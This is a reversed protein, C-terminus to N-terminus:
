QQLSPTSHKFSHTTCEGTHVTLRPTGKMPTTLQQSNAVLQWTVPVCCGPLCMLLFAPHGRCSVPLCQGFFLCSGLCLTMTVYSCRHSQMLGLVPEEQAASRIVGSWWSRQKNLEARCLAHYQNVVLAQQRATHFPSLGPQGCGEGSVVGGWASSPCILVVALQLAIWPLMFKM